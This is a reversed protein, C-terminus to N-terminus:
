KAPTAPKAGAAARAESLQKLTEELSMRQRLERQELLRILGDFSNSM